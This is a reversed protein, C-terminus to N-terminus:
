PLSVGVGRYSALSSMSLLFMQFLPMYVEEFDNSVTLMKKDSESEIYM